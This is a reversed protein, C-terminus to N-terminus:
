LKTYIDKYLSKIRIPSFVSKIYDTDVHKGINEGVKKCFDKYDRYKFVACGDVGDLYDLIRVRESLLVPTGHLLSELAVYCFAEYRSPVVTLAAKSYLKSLENDSIGIHQHFDPRKPLKGKGVIHIDYKGIPLHLLHEFGKVRNNVGGVFLIMKKNKEYKPEKNEVSICHPIQEIKNNIKSMFNTDEKNITVVQDVCRKITRYFLVYFIIKSIAPYHLYKFPHWHPSYVIKKNQHHAIIMSQITGLATYGNIHIIDAKKIANVLEEPRYCYHLIPIFKTPYDVIPLVKIDNDNVFLDYIMHCYRDTGGPSNQRIFLIKKM